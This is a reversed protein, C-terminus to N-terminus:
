RPKKKPSPPGYLTQIQRVQESLPGRASNTEVGTESEGEGPIAEVSERRPRIASENVNEALPKSLEELESLTPKKKVEQAIDNLASVIQEQKTAIKAQQEVLQELVGSRETDKAM